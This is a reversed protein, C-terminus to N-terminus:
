QPRVSSMNLTLPMHPRREFDLRREGRMLGNEFGGHDAFLVRVTQDFRFGEDHQAVAKGGVLPEEFVQADM